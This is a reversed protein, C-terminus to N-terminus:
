ENRRQALRAQVEDISPMASPPPPPEVIRVRTMDNRGPIPMITLSVPTMNPEGKMRARNFVVSYAPGPTITADLQARFYAEVTPLTHQGDYHWEHSLVFKPAFGRPIIIGAVRTKSPLLDGKSTSIRAAEIAQERKSGLDEALLVQRRVEVKRQEEASSCAGVSACMLVLAFRRIMWHM